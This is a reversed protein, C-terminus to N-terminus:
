GNSHPNTANFHDAPTEALQNSHFDLIACMEKCFISVTEFAKKQCDTVRHLKKSSIDQTKTKKSNKEATEEIFTKAKDKLGFM